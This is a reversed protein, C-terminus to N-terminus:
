KMFGAKGDGNSDVKPNLKDMLSPKHAPDQPSGTHSSNDSLDGGTGITGHSGTLRSGAASHSSTPFSSGSHHGSTTSNSSFGSDRLGASGGGLSQELNTPAGKFHDVREERGALSGGGRKFEDISVAPLASASHHQAKNHHVEHIPVTTHVVHPEITEKQIVPQITEHIHHHIHEGQVSPLETSTHKTDTRVQENKFQAKTQALFNETNRTDREDHTRHEVPVINAHHKEPLVERNKIPQVTTHYHDQHVERDVAIQREERQNPNITKHEVAPAVREHVETDHHGSKSLLSSVAAKAKDMNTLKTTEDIRPSILQHSL